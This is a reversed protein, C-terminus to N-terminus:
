GIVAKEHILKGEKFRNISLNNAEPLYMTGHMIYTALLKGVVPGLMFGHGSFGAGIVFGPIDTGGLIPHHDPSVVYFGAWQRMVNLSSLVPMVSLIEEAFRPLFEDTSILNKSSSEGLDTGGIIRGRCTQTFYLEDKVVMPDLFIKVPESVAIQHRFLTLPLTIHVMQAINKAGAGATNVVFHTSYINKNTIVSQIIGNEIKISKVEEFQKVSVGSQVLATRLADVTDFPYANGDSPCWSAGAVDSINIGPVIMKIEDKDIIRSNVGLINQLKVYERYASIKDERLLWLYGGQRFHVSKPLNNEWENWLKVSERMLIIHERTTFQQRIGTGCRGTSGSGLYSKEIVVINKIGEKALYYATSLGTIGGGIIVVDKNEM